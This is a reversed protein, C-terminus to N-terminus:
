ILVEEVTKARKSYVSKRRADLKKAPYDKLNLKLNPASILGAEELDTITGNAQVIRQEEDVMASLILLYNIADGIKEDWAERTYPTSGRVMAAIATLHKLLYGWLVTKQNANRNLHSYFLKTAEKFNGLRDYDEGAYEQGKSFLVEGCKNLMDRVSKSFEKNTAM